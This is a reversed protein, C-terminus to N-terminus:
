MNYAYRRAQDAAIRRRRLLDAAGKTLAAKNRANREEDEPLTNKDTKREPLFAKQEVLDARAGAEGRAVDAEGAALGAEVRDQRRVMDAGGPTNAIRDVAKRKARYADLSKQAATANGAKTEASSDPAYIPIGKGRTGVVVGKPAGAGAANTDADWWAPAADPPPKGSMIRDVAAKQEAEPMRSAPPTSMIRKVAEDHTEAKPSPDGATGPEGMGGEAGEDGDSGPVGGVEDSDNDPATVGITSAPPTGPLTTTGKARDEPTSPLTTATPVPKNASVARVLARARRARELSNQTQIDNLERASELRRQTQVDQASSQMQEMRTNAQSSETLSGSIDVGEKEAEKAVAYLDEPHRRRNRNAKVQM